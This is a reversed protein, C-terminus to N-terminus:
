HVAKGARAPMDKAPKFVDCAAVLDKAHELLELLEERSLDGSFHGLVGSLLGRCLPAMEYSPMRDRCGIVLPGLLVAAGDIGIDGASGDCSMQVEGTVQVGM